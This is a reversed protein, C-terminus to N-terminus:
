ANEEEEEADEELWAEYGEWLGDEKPINLTIEIIASGEIKVTSVLGSQALYELVETATYYAMRLADITDHECKITAEYYTDKTIISIDQWNYNWCFYGLVDKGNRRNKISGNEFFTIYSM